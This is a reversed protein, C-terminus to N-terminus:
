FSCLSVLHTCLLRLAVDRLGAGALDAEHDLVVGGVGLPYLSWVPWWEHVLWSVGNSPPDLEIDPLSQPRRGEHNTQDTHMIGVVDVLPGLVILPPCFADTLVSHLVLLLQFQKVILVM